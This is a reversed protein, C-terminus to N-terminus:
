SQHTCSTNTVTQHPSTVSTSGSANAYDASRVGSPYQSPFPTNYYYYMKPSWEQNCEECHVVKCTACFKVHEHPCSCSHHTHPM